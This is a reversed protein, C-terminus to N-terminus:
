HALLDLLQQLVRDVPREALRRVADAGQEAVRGVAAPARQPHEHVVLHVVQRVVAHRHGDRDEVLLHRLQALESVLGDVEVGHEVVVDLVLRERLARHEDGEVVAVAVVEHIGRGHQVPVAIRRHLEDRERIDAVTLRQRVLLMEGRAAHDVPRDVPFLEALELPEAHADLRVPEAM